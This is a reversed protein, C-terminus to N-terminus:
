IFINDNKYVYRIKVIFPLATGTAYSSGSEQEVALLAGTGICLYVLPQYIQTFINIYPHTM